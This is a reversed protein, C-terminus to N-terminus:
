IHNFFRLRPTFWFTKACKNNSVARFMGLKAWGRQAIYLIIHSHTYSASRSNIHPWIVASRCESHRAPAGHEYNHLEHAWRRRRAVQFNMQKRMQPCFAVTCHLFYPVGEGQFRHSIRHSDSTLFIPVSKKIQVFTLLPCKLFTHLEFACHCPIPKGPPPHLQSSGCCRHPKSCITTTSHMLCWDIWHYKSGPVCISACASANGFICIGLYPCVSCCALCSAAM